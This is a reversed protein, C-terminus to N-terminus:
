RPGDDRGAVIMKHPGTGGCLFRQRRLAERDVSEAIIHAIQIGLGVM